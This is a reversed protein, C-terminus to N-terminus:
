YLSKNIYLILQNACLSCYNALSELSNFDFQGGHSTVDELTNSQIILSDRVQELVKRYDAEKTPSGLILTVFRGDESNWIYNEDTDEFYEIIQYKSDLESENIMNELEDLNLFGYSKYAIKVHICTKGFMSIKRVIPNVKSHGFKM